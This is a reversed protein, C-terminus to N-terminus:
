QLEMLTALSWGDEFDALRKVGLTMLREVIRLREGEPYGDDHIILYRVEERKLSAVSESDPFSSLRALRLLYTRPYFGSYGNVLPMWHFTSMYAFRADHHPPAGPKPMPFEAVTGPPLRRVIKYLPPAGNPYAVLQLPAVRYEFLIAACVLAAVVARMVPSAARTVAATAHATLVGLFFLCYVSARAPARLARFVGVHEYLLPYLWGNSGLSLEFALVLGVLYTVVVTSPPILVLGVLALLPAVIGPFLRREPRGTNLEGYLLNTPTAVQYDGPRASFMRVEHTSRLGVTASAAKYPLSYLWSASAAVVGGLLLAGATHVVRKRLTTLQLTAITGILTLLFVGYYISSLMQLAMLVGMLLGFRRRGTEITRQLALFAWPTWVTWQLEMHMYHEFRYPAFAFVVGATMAAPTNGTLHRALIFIGVASAAIAGLMWLNHVLVPPVGIWFLPAALLGQLLMADSYALVGPEPHFINGNFLDAPSTAIAHAVWRLRWLNFFVDQHEVAHTKLVLVHPWTMVATIVIFIATAVAIPRLNRRASETAIEAM